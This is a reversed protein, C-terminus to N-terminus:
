KFRPLPSLEDREESSYNSSKGDIEREILISQLTKPIKTKTKPKINVANSINSNMTLNQRQNLNAQKIIDNRYNKERRINEQRINYQTMDAEKIPSPKVKHKLGINDFDIPQIKTKEKTFIGGGGVLGKNYFNHLKKCHAESCSLEMSSKSLLNKQQTKTLLICDGDGICIKVPLGKLLKKKNAVSLKKVNTELYM